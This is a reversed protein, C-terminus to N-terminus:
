LKAHVVFFLFNIKLCVLIILKQLYQKDKKQIIKYRPYESYPKLFTFLLICSDISMIKFVLNM